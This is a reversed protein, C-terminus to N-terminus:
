FRKFSMFRKDRPCSIFTRVEGMNRDHRLEEIWFQRTNSKIALFGTKGKNLIAYGYLPYIHDSRDIKYKEDVIVTEYPFTDVSEFALGRCKVEVRFSRGGISSKIDGDDVHEMRDVWGSCRTSPLVVSEFGKQNLWECVLEVGAESQDIRTMIDKHIKKNSM